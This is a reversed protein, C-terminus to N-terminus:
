EIIRGPAVLLYAASDLILLARSHGLTLVWLPRLTMEKAETSM